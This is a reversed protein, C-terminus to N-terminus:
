MATHIQIHSSQFHLDDLRLIIGKRSEKISTPLAKEAQTTKRKGKKRQEGGRRVKKEVTNEYLPWMSADRIPLLGLFHPSSFPLINLLFPMSAFAEILGSHPWPDGHKLHHNAPVLSDMPAAPSPSERSKSSIHRM